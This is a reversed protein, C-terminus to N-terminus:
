CRSQNIEVRHIEPHLRYDIMLCSSTISKSHSRTHPFFPKVSLNIGKGYNDVLDLYPDLYKVGGAATVGFFTYIIHTCITPDIDNVEFRGLGNRWVSWTGYYCIVKETLFFHFNPVKQRIFIKGM